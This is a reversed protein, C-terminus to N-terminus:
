RREDVLVILEGPESLLHDPEAHRLEHESGFGWLVGAASLRAKRAAILDTARDGILMARRDILGDHRLRTLREDKGLGGDGGSIYLFYTHWGFMTVIKEAINKPKTTCIGMGCGCRSLTDLMHDIGEYVRNRRYGTDNYDQRYAAVCSAILRHDTSGTFLRFMDALPPGIHPIVESIDLPDLGHRALAYNISQTIGAGPDSLTGDLDFVLSSITKAM